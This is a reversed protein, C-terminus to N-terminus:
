GDEYDEDAILLLREATDATIEFGAEKAISAISDADTSARLKEQLSTDAQVAEWFAKLPQETM